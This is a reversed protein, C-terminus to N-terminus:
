KSSKLRRQYIDLAQKDGRNLANIFGKFGGFLKNIERDLDSPRQGAGGKPMVKHSLDPATIVYIKTGDDRTVTRHKYEGESMINELEEKIIQDLQEKTIKM